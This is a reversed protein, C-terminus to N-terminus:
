GADFEIFELVSVTGQVLAGNLADMIMTKLDAEAVPNEGQEALAKNMVEYVINRFFPEYGKVPNEQTRAIQFTLSLSIYAAGATGPPSVAVFDNMKITYSELSEQATEVHGVAETETSGHAAIEEGHSETQETVAPGHKKEGGNKFKAKYLHLSGYGALAVLLVATVAAFIKKGPLPKKEKVAKVKKVKKKLPEATESVKELKELIVQDHVDDDTKEKEREDEQLLRDIDAQSILKDPEPPRAPQSDGFPRASNLLRDIDEQDILTSEEEEPEQYKGMLLKDIDDQSILNGDEDDDGAGKKGDSEEDPLPSAGTLLNDIDEQSIVNDVTGMDPMPKENAEELVSDKTEVEKEVGALLIDIDDQTILEGSDEEGDDGDKDNTFDSGSVLAKIDEDSISDLDDDDAPTKKVPDDMLLKRIDEPSVLDLDALSDDDPFPEPEAKKKKKSSTQGALLADIDEQTVLDSGSGGGDNEPESEITKRGLSLLADIDDQTIITNDSTEDPIVSADGGEAGDDMPVLEAEKLLTDLEDQSFFSDKYKSDSLAM